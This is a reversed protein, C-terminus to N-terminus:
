KSGAYAIKELNGMIELQEQFDLADFWVYFKEELPLTEFNDKFAFMDMLDIWVSRYEMMKDLDTLYESIVEKKVLTALLKLSIRIKAVLNSPSQSYKVVLEEMPMNARIADNLLGMNPKYSNNQQKVTNIDKVPSEKRSERLKPNSPNVGFETKSM